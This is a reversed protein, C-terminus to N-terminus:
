YIDKEKQNLIKYKYLYSNKKSSKTLFGNLYGNDKSKLYKNLIYYLFIFYIFFIFISNIIM